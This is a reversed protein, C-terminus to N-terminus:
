NSILRYFNNDSSTSITVSNVGGSTTPNTTVTTWVVPAQLSSTEQLSYTTNGTAPWTFTLSNGSHSVSLPVVLIVSKVQATNNGKFPDPIDSGVGFSYINTSVAAVNPQVVLNFTVVAGSGLSGLTSTIFGSSNVFGGSANDSVLNVDTPLANTVFVDTATAPGFNTLSLTLTLQGPYFIPDQSAVAGIALDAKAVEVTSVLTATNNFPNDEIENASVSVMNTIEGIVPATVVITVAATANTVLSGVGVTVTGNNNTYGNPSTV